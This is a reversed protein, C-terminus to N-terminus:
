SESEDSDKTDIIRRTINFNMGEGNVNVETKDIYSPSLAKREEDTCILKMLAVQLTANDSDYWKKRMSSKIAIRNKELEDKIANFEDSDLKFHEYFTPKSCPLFAVVDEIFFLRKDKIISIAQEFLDETKYAM